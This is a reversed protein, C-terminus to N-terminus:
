ERFNFWFIVMAGLLALVGLLMVMTGGADLSFSFRILLGGTALLLLSYWLNNRCRKM